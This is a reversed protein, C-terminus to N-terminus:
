ARKEAGWGSFRSQDGDLPGALVELIALALLKIGSPALRPAPPLLVRKGRAALWFRESWPGSTQILVAQGRREFDAVDEERWHAADLLRLIAAGTPDTAPAEALLALAAGKPDGSGAWTCFFALRTMNM